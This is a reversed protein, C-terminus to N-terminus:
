FPIEDFDIPEPADNNILQNGTSTNAFRKWEPSQKIHDQLKEHLSNFVDMDVNDLDLKQNAHIPEPKSMQKHLPAIGAINSYTKGNTESIVVNLMCYAGLLKSVDFAKAEEDTFDRGRWAALDKRLGAKEHLSVTYTKNITLPMEKGDVDITLPQGEDDDGFVEFALRLKHQNKEGYQGSTLHTGLDIVSFCRAIHSGSPVRKFNSNGGNDAAILGM